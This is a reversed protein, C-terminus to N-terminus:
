PAKITFTTDSDDRFGPLNYHNVRIKVKDSLLRFKTTGVLISDTLTTSFECQDQLNLSETQDPWLAVRVTNTEDIFRISIQADQEDDAAIVKIKLTQGTTYTEGGNPSLVQYAPDLGGVKKRLEAGLERCSKEAEPESSCASFGILALSALVGL